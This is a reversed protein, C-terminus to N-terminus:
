DAAEVLVRLGEVASVRVRAGAPIESKATANWLEGHVFVKGDPQLTTRALANWMGPRAVRAVFAEDNLEVRKRASFDTHSTSRIVAPGNTGRNRSQTRGESVFELVAADDSPISAVGVRGVSHTDSRINTGLICDTIWEVNQEIAVPYRAEPSRTYDPFVVAARAGVALERVLREHTRFDGFVWGAGHVYLIVPLTGTAGEPRVITLPIADDAGSLSLTVIDAPPQDVDGGQVEDVTERGKEPGLDFLYPPAATADAFAQAAPELVVNSGTTEM